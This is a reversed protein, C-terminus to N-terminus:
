PTIRRIIVSTVGSMLTEVAALKCDTAKSTFTTVASEEGIQLMVDAQCVVPHDNIFSALHPCKSAVEDPTLFRLNNIHINM